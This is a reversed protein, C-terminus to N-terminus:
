KNKGHSLLGNMTKKLYEKQERNAVYVGINSFDAKLKVKDFDQYNYSLLDIALERAATELARALQKEKRKHKVLWFLHQKTLGMREALTANDIGLRKFHNLIDKIM